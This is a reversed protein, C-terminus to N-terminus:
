FSTEKKGLQLVKVDVISLGNGIGCRSVCLVDFLVYVSDKMLTSQPDGDFGVILGDFKQADSKVQVFAVVLGEDLSVDHQLIDVM